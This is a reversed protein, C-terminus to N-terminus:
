TPRGDDDTMSVGGGEGRAPASYLRRLDEASTREVVELGIRLLLRM